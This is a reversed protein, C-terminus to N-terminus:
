KIVCTKLITEFQLSKNEWSNEKAKRRREQHKIESDNKLSLNLMSSFEKANYAIEIYNNLDNLRAFDTAIVPIGLALYENAKMPYIGSTFDNKIFPIIGADFHQMALALETPKISGHFTVNPFAKLKYAENSTVPGIFEFQLNPNQSIVESLLQYNLRNDICGTYGVIAKTKHQSFGKLPLKEFARLDAGNNVVFSRSNGAKNIQLADSTFIVADAHQIIEKELCAGHKAAWAAADINDYCYYVLPHKDFVKKSAKAFFPNFANVIIDPHFQIEKLAHKIRKSVIFGNVTEVLGYIRKNSIWNFPLIPPLSLVSIEASNSLSVKRLGTQKGFISKVPIARERKSILIDKITYCYDIYLVNHRVALEKALEITSKIYEDSWSPFSWFVINLKANVPM